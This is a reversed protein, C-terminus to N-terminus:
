RKMSRRDHYADRRSTADAKEFKVIILDNGNTLLTVVGRTLEFDAVLDKVNLGPGLGLLGSGEADQRLRSRCRISAMDLTDCSGYVSVM